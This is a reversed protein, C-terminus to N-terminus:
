TRKAVAGDCGAAIPALLEASRGNARLKRQVAIVSFSAPMCMTTQM